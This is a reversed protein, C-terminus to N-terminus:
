PVQNSLLDISEVHFDTTDVEKGVGMKMKQGMLYALARNISKRMPGEVGGAIKLKGTGPSCGVELRCLGVKGHDNVSATYVSGPALPDISIMETRMTRLLLDIWEDSTFQRRCVRHEELDFTAIQIPKLNDIWFPSRRGKAEEDYQHRIEVQAWIGGM